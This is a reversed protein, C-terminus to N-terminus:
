LKLDKWKVIRYDSSETAPKFDKIVKKIQKLIQKSSEENEKELYKELSCLQNKLENYNRTQSPLQGDEIELKLRVLTNVIFQMAKKATINKTYFECIHRGIAGWYNIFFHDDLREIRQSKIIFDSIEELVRGAYIKEKKIIDRIFGTDIDFTWMSEPFLKEENAKFGYYTQQSILRIIIYGEQYDKLNNFENRGILRLIFELERRCSDFLEKDKIEIASIQIDRIFYILDNIADWQLSSEINHNVKREKEFVLYLDMLEEQQPCNYKLNQQFISSLVKVGSALSDGLRNRSLFKIFERLFFEIQQYHLLYNRERAASEYIEEVCEWVTEYFQFNGVRVAELNASSWLFSLGTFVTDCVRRDNGNGILEISKKNIKELIVVYAEYDCDRVSNVLEYRIKFLPLESNKYIFKDFQLRESEGFDQITLNEINEITDKLSDATELIKKAAPFIAIIFGLFLLGVFYGINLNNSQNFDKITVYSILSLVIVTIASSVLNTVIVNTFISTGKRRFANDKLFEFTLLIVAVLLGFISATSSIILEFYSNPNISSLKLYDPVLEINSFKAIIFIAISIIAILFKRFIDKM